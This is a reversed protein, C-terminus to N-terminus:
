EDQNVTQKSSDYFQDRTKKAQSAELLEQMTMEPLKVWSAWWQRKCKLCQVKTEFDDIEGLKARFLLENGCNPCKM